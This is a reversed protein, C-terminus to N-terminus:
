SFKLTESAMVQELPSPLLTKLTQAYANKATQLMAIQLNLRQLELDAMQLMHVQRRADESLDALAYEIGDINIKQKQAPSTM